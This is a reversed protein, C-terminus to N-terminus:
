ARLLPYPIMCGFLDSKGTWKLAFPPTLCAHYTYGHVSQNVASRSKLYIGSTVQERWQRGDELEERM